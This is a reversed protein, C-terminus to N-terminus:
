RGMREVLWAHVDMWFALEGDTRVREDLWGALEMRETVFGRIIMGAEGEATLEEYVTKLVEDYFATDQAMPEEGGDAM